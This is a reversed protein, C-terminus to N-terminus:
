QGRLEELEATLCFDTIQYLYRMNKQKTELDGKNLKLETILFETMLKLIQFRM